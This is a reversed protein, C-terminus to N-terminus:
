PRAGRTAEMPEAISAVIVQESGAIARLHNRGMRGAGALGLRFPAM